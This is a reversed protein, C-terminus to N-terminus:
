SIRNDKREIINNSNTNASNNPAQKGRSTPQAFLVGQYMISNIELSVVLSRDGSEGRSAIRINAGGIAGGGNTRGEVSDSRERKMPPPSMVDDEEGDLLVDEDPTRPRVRHERDSRDHERERHREGDPRDRDEKHIDNEKERRKEAEISEAEEKKDREEAERVAQLARAHQEAM